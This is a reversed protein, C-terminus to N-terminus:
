GIRLYGLSAGDTIQSTLWGMPLLSRYAQLTITDAGSATYLWMTAGGGNGEYVVGAPPVPIAVFMITTASRTLQTALNDLRISITPTPFPAPSSGQANAFGWLLYTGAGPLTISAGPIDYWTVDTPINFIVGPGLAVNGSALASESMPSQFNYGVCDPDPELWVRTGVTLSTDGTVDFAYQGEPQITPDNFGPVTLDLQLRKWDYGTTANYVSTLEAPFGLQTTRIRTKGFVTDIAGAFGMVKSLM